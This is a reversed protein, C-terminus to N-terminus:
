GFLGIMGFDWCCLRNLFNVMIGLILVGSFYLFFVLYVMVVIMVRVVM